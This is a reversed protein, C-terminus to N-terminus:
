TTKSRKAAPKSGDKVLQRKLKEAARDLATQFDAAEASAVRTQARPLHLILEVVKRQHDDDFIVQGRQPRHSLKSVREMLANARERLDPAIECHRATIRTKM